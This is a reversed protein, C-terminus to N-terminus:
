RRVLPMFIRHLPTGTPGATTAPGYENIAGGLETEALWYSYTVGPIATTDRWVYSAGGNRGAGPILTTTIREADARSGTVSRWLHFGWTNQEFATTWRVVVLQGEMRSATFSVLGVVTPTPGYGFNILIQDEAVGLILETVSDNGGDFDFSAVLGDPVTSLDISVRYRGAPLHPILYRGQADTTTTYTVDDATGFVGDAGAWVVSVVVGGIGVEGEDRVGNANADNWVYQSISGIGTVGFDVDVRTSSGISIGAITRNNPTLDLDYTPRTGNLIGDGITIRYSGYPLNTFSYNGNADTTTTFTIDDDTGPVGDTGFWTLTVTVGPLTPEDPDRNGNANADFWVTDGLSGRGVYGFDVDRRAQGTNLSITTSGDLTGDLEFTQDMGRPLTTRDLEVRYEGVPLGTFLYNGNRDTITENYRDDATGFIGDPGADILRMIVGALGPEDASQVGDANRDFWVRDGVSANNPNIGATFGFDVDNRQQGVGLILETVGDLTGDLEYTATPTANLGTGSVAVRYRGAPLGSFRYGGGANTTTTRVIDDATGFIGDKGAGTLTVTVNPIGIENADQFRNANADFWVFDGISGSGSYGFDVDSREPQATTLDATATHATAIGDLDFSSVLGAPLTTRDVTVTYRGLPLGSFRYSGDSGTLQSYSLGNSGQLTVTVGALGPEDADQVGDGNLDLWVRDGLSGPGPIIPTSRLGFNADDRRQGANLILETSNDRNGDRDYTPHLGDLATGSIAVRYRGQELGCVTYRGNTDTLVTTTTDDATGFIGDPGAGTVTVTVGAIGTEGADQVGNGNTDNWVLNGLCGAVGGASHPRFGFDVDSRVEGSALGIEVLGDLTGDLEYTPSHDGLAACSGDVIVCYRGAVLGTFQYNGNADTVVSASTDDATGFIGDPGAGILNVTCVVGSEGADQVGNGNTDIWLRDGISSTAPPNPNVYGFDVDRRSELAALQVETTHDLKLDLDFTQVLDNLPTGSTTVRYNGEPLNDFLYFGNQDTTTTLTFDDATGFIGDAGAGVLTVTVGAIGPESADQQGDGDTDYWVRDGLSSDGDYGFDADRIAEGTSLTLEIVHPTSAGDRDFTPYVSSPLGLTNVTVRYQGAPLNAFLYEGDADTSTTLTLDDATGLIGDPGAWVLTLAINPLGPEDPDQVGDGNKDFWVRDGISATGSYGFDVDRRDPAAVTLEALAVHATATGDLDFTQTFGAPLDASNVTTRYNGLPLGTFLYNGDVDTTTIFSLADATGFIGDPGAWELTVAVNAFGPEGIQFSADANVDYWVLDGLSGVGVYGFDATRYAEGLALDVILPNNATTISLGAPVTSEDVAVAYRGNPLGDFLYGGSADTTTTFTQDDATGIIGDPGAWTLNVTVDRLGPEDADQIGDNNRDLWVYDGISGTGVYGFDVDRRDQGTTLAAVATNATPTGDLDFTPTFTGPLTAPNVTARFSGAPLGTFLYEGNADTTTTGIVIDDATGEIGDLGFYRLTVSVGALGPEDAAQVGDNNRDFWVRDGLSATGAYGFDVDRRNANTSSLTAEAVHATATGDLDFSPTVGAPLDASNVTVQYDGYPLNEVLYEGNADTTTTFVVDDANGFIGDPGAWRVTVEVNPIGPEGTDQVGDNNFDFWVRDGISAVGVYGFDLDRRNPNTSSLAAEAVHATATGDLDFTQSLGVPLTTSDVTVRYDGYPLNEVLYEGNADTTTTISVDDANGLIGDPGAWRVTVDVGPIGAEDADQVGDSNFDYWVRDGISAVGVYGFDVDTRSATLNLEAVHATATGDLDFTPTLGAPLDASDVTVRYAGAPLNNVTYIGDAGTTTTFLLDDANGFVGDPGAWRVTVDVGVFGPEDVDQAGNNNQDFWVRDGLSLTGRYGFDVDTRQQAAGLTAAALDASAIGDLDFTQTLGAPLSAAVVRVSYDGAPLGSFTYSGNTGTTTSAIVTNSADLLEVTIGVLGPEDADQVGDGNTDLWVRDGLSGLQFPTNGSTTYDNIGGSGNREGTTSGSTGPTSNGTGREGPLSTYTLTATNTQDVTAPLTDLTASIRVVVTAGVNLRNLTADVTNGTSNNTLTVGGPNTQIAVGTLTQNAPLADSIRLEFADATGSNTITLDYSFGAGVALPPTAYNVSKGISLSPEVVTTTINNSITGSDAGNIRVQFTNVHTDGADNSGASSNDVLAAFEVVVFENDADSDANLLNGLSFTVATGSSFPGGSVASGPLAFTPAAPDSGTINLGVGSLTSSSIGTGNAIFAVTATDALYTLGTPLNEVIQFNTATGEPLRVALRYRLVEGIAVNTASTHAESTSVLSKTALVSNVTVDATDDDTFNNQTPTGSGTREGTTTGSDGPTADGTGNTGPLSTYTATATNTILESPAVSAALSVEYTVSVAGGVPITAITLDITNGTSNNTIGTAGGSLTVNISALNLTLGAPLTDLLRVDFATTRNTAAPNGFTVTYAITDGADGSTPAAVKTVNNILPTAITVRVSNSTSGSQSGNIRVAFTNDRNTSATNGSINNIVADFEVVVFEEDADTDDNDLNGLSLTVDTGSTFPGGSVASDPIPCTISSSPLDALDASAGTVNLNACGTLATTITSSTIGAENAVFAIRATGPLYQIGNPLADVLQFNPAVSEALRVALRYRVVEGIAVSSGTTHAESTSVLSKVPTPVFITLMAPDSTRYDNQTPTQSGTREGTDSGPTGPTSSGTSNVTTGNTGPLSTYTAVATNTIEQGAIVGTNITVSYDIQITGGVPLTAITLDITNGASNNTIGAAGGGLTSAISSLDLTLESPLLDVIRVEFATTRTNTLNVRYTITDGADGLANSPAQVIKTIAVNPEVITVNVADSTGIETTDVIATVTNARTEGHDNSGTASNDLLANFEIVVYEFDDDRDANTLNGLNFRVDTGSTFPGGSIAGAPVTFTPTAPAAGNIALGPGSITSSTLGPGNSIFAITATGDNLFTLGNPLNDRLAFSNTVGEPFQAVLRYRVIEGIALNTGSTHAESTAVISKTLPARIVVSADDTPRQEPDPVHNVGGEDGAYSVVSTVNTLVSGAPANTDVQLDYTIIIINRGNDPDYTQCAGEGAPDVLQIGTTFLDAPSGTFSIVEGAGNTVRLNLGAGSPPIMFGLPITDTIAVDFAGKRSTGTNEIMVAFSVLDGADVGQLDATIPTGELASSSITGSFRNGATGPATFTTPGATTPAGSSDILEAAPSNSGIVGKSLRLRPQTLIIQVIADAFSEVEGTSSETQRVQNTIFLRDAFPADSVTVTFLLDVRSAVNSDNDYSGYSFSVTNNVLDVSVTPDPTGPLQSFTDAPGYKATGAPPVTASPAATDFTTVEAASFVPLPLYDILTLLEVDSSPLVKEIRYTITDGPAVEIPTTFTTSGNVAYVSKSLEGRAIDVGAGSTDAENQGTPTLGVNNLVDGAVLVDNTLVDGQDVSRDGSPFEDSFEDQIQTRFVITATTPGDGAGLLACPAILGTGAPSVCGGLLDGTAQGRSILENAISFTITTTGDNTAPNLTFIPPTAVAGTFNQSVTYNAPAFGATAFTFNHGNVQLTPTFGPVFRQGDSFTDVVVLNRFAFFDSIQIELRYELVDGPTNADDTLNTVSKQIAVSKPTLTHEPGVDDRTVTTTPDRPDLPTWSASASANNLATADDGSLPDIIVANTADLRPVYFTFLLVADAADTTGTVSAFRRTLTGGPITTSPTAIATTTVAAGNVTTADVQVFQLNPPLLDTIDLNTLTQGAAVDVSLEYQRPFNPGTATEDEPGLYTKTLTYLLPTVSASAPWTSSTSSLPNIVTPDCCPNDLADLGFQFGARARMTLPANLDALPSLTANITVEATPQDATFSGFPLLIVVLTDGPTGCVLFPNNTTDRAYPHPLCGGAPFTLEQLIVPSGLYTAGNFIIGDDGDSGTRPIVLDIFPGYGTSAGTNTFTVTFDFDEGLFVESPASMGATPVGAARVPQANPFLSAFLLTILLIPLLWHTRRLRMPVERNSHVFRCQNTPCSRNRAFL